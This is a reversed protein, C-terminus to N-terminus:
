LAMSAGDATGADTAGPGAGAFLNEGAQGLRGDATECSRGVLGSPRVDEHEGPAVGVVGLVVLAVSRHVASALRPALRETNIRNVLENRIRRPATVRCSSRTSTCAPRTRAASAAGSAFRDLVRRGQLARSRSRPRGASCARRRVWTARAASRSSGGDAAGDLLGRGGSGVGHGRGAGALRPRGDLRLLGRRRLQLHRRRIAVLWYGTAPAARRWASSRGREPPHAGTSGYFRADGFSFVGGDSAVLWYGHGTATRAMGVIPKNCVCRAPRATSARTASRSSAATAIRRALLRQGSPTAAMGVIPQKLRMRAPRATSTRTASASSAATPHSSGTARARRRRAGHRRDSPEAAQAGGLRSVDRGRGARQEDGRDIGRCVLAAVVALTYARRRSDMRKCASANGQGRRFAPGGGPAGIQVLIPLYPRSACDRGSFVDQAAM